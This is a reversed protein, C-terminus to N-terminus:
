LDEDMDTLNQKNQIFTVRIPIFNYHRMTTKVQMNMIFVSMSCRKTIIPLEYMEKPSIDVWM